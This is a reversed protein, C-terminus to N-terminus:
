TKDNYVNYDWGVNFTVELWFAAVWCHPCGQGNLVQAWTWSAMWMFHIYRAHSCGFRPHWRESVAFITFGTRALMTQLRALLWCLVMFVPTMAELEHKAGPHLALWNGLIELCVLATSLRRFVACYLGRERYMQLSTMCSGTFGNESHQISYNLPLPLCSLM